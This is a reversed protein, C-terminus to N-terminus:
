GIGYRKLKTLLGTRSIGLLAAAQKKNWGTKELAELIRNKEVEELEDKLTGRSGLQPGREFVKRLDPSIKDLTVADGDACLVVARRVENELERVNNERWEHTSFLERVDHNFGKIQKGERESHLKLFHTMLLSVDGAHDRLPPVEITFTCLRYLLDRRFRGAKMEEILDKNTASIVRADSRRTRNEGVRRYEGDQLFRLLKVQLAKSMEGIEDLFLTGGSAAAVLGAHDQEAGTFAGKVHGFLESEQLEPAIAGANLAIFEGTKSRGGEHIGRAVLEKGVGSEGQILVPVQSDRLRDISDLIRLMAPDRAVIGACWQVGGPAGDAEAQGGPQAADAVRRHAAALLRAAAGLFEIDSCAFAMPDGSSSRDVYLVHVGVGRTETTAPIVAVAGAGNPLRTKRSTGSAVFPTGCGHTEGVARIFRSVPGVGDGNCGVSMAVAPDTDERVVAVVLWRASVAEAVGVAIERFDDWRFVLSKLSEYGRAILAYQSGSVLGVDSLSEDLDRMVGGIEALCEADGTREFECRAKRLCVRCRDPQGAKLLARGRALHCSAVWHDAGIRAFLSIAASLKAEIEDIPYGEGVPFDALGAADTVACKALEFSDGTRRLIDEAQEIAARAAASDGNGYRIRALVRLGVGQEAEDHIERSLDIAALCDHEAEDLRGLAFLAEARCRLVQNVVDNRSSLSHGVELAQDLLGHAEDYNGRDMELRGLSQLAIAEAREYGGERSKELAHRFLREAKDWERRARAISGLSTEVGIRWRTAGVSAYIERAENLYCEADAWRSLKSLVVGMNQLYRAAHAPRRQRQDTELARDFFRLASNLDGTRTALIGLNNNASAVGDDNGARKESVLCDTFYDRAAETNGLEANSIGLVKSVELMLGGDPSSTLRDRASSAAALAAEYHGSEIEVRSLVIEAEALISDPEPKLNLGAVMGCYARADAYNGLGFHCRAIRIYLEAIARAEMVSSIDNGAAQMYYDLAREYSDSELCLDGLSVGRRAIEHADGSATATRLADVM